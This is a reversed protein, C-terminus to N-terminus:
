TSATPSPSPLHLSSILPSSLHHLLSSPSCVAPAIKSPPYCAVFPLSGSRHQAKTFFGRYPRVFTTKCVYHNSTLTHQALLLSRPATCAEDARSLTSSSLAKCDRMRNRMHDVRHYTASLKWNATRVLPLYQSIRRSLVGHQLRM